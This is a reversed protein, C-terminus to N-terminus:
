LSTLEHMAEGALDQPMRDGWRVRETEAVRRWTVEDDDDEVM